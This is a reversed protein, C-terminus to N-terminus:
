EGENEENTQLQEDLYQDVIKFVKNATKTELVNEGFESAAILYIAEKSPMLIGILLLMVFLFLYKKCTQLKKICNENFHVAMVLCTSLTTVLGVVILLAKLPVIIDAM